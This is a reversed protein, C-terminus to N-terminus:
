RSVFYSIDTANVLLRISRITPDYTWYNKGPLSGGNYNIGCLPYQGGDGNMGVMQWDYYVDRFDFPANLCKEVEEDNECVLVRNSLIPAFYMGNPSVYVVEGYNGIFDDKQLWPADEFYM